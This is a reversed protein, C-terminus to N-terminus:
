TIGTYIIKDSIIASKVAIPSNGNINRLAFMIAKEPYQKHLFVFRHKQGNETKVDFLRIRNAV